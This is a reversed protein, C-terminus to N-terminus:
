KVFRAIFSVFSSVFLQTAMTWFTKTMDEMGDFTNQQITTLVKCFPQMPKDFCTDSPLFLDLVAVNTKIPVFYLKHSWQHMTLILALAILGQVVQQQLFWLVPRVFWTGLVFHKWFKPSWWFHLIPFKRYAKPDANKQEEPVFHKCLVDYKQRNSRQYDYKIGLLSTGKELFQKAGVLRADPLVGNRQFQEYHQLIVQRVSAQPDAILTKYQQIDAGVDEAASAATATMVFSRIKLDILFKIIFTNTTLFM